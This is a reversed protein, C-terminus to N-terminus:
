VFHSIENGLFNFSVVKWGAYLRQGCDCSFKFTKPMLKSVLCKTQEAKSRAM